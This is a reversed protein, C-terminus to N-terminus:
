ASSGVANFLVRLVKEGTTQRCYIKMKPHNNIPCETYKHFLRTVATKSHIGFHGVSRLVWLSNILRIFLVVHYLCLFIAELKLKIFVCKWKHM